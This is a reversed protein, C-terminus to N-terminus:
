KFHELVGHIYNKEIHEKNLECFMDFDFRLRKNKHHSIHKKFRELRLYDEVDIRTIHNKLKHIPLGMDILFMLLDINIQPKYGNELTYVGSRNMQTVRAMETRTMELYQERFEKVLMGFEFKRDKTIM